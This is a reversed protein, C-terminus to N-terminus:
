PQYFQLIPGEVFGAMPGPQHKPTLYTVTTVLKFPTSCDEPKITGAPIDLWVTYENDGPCPDLDIELGSAPLRLEPGPGISEIHANVCWKGCVFETLKGRLVWKVHVKWDQDARIITVPEVGDVETVYSYIDGELYPTILPGSTEFRGHFTAESM